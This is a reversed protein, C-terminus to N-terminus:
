RRLHKPVPEGRTREFAERDEEATYVRLLDVGERRIAFVPHGRRELWADSPYYLGRRRQLVFFDPAVPPGTAPSNLDVLTVRPPLRGWERLLDHVASDMPLALAIPRHKAEAEAAAWDFFEDGATEWYYTLEFGLREAGRLGGVAANYYSDTYPYTRAIGVLSEGLAGAALLPPIIRRWGLRLRPRDALWAVGLGALVALSAVSPLILRIGDHGPANPLARVVMLTAWSLPWILAWPEVRRRAVCAAVGIMGLALVSVPTTVATLVLTNHWPLSFDYVRGLYLTALPQTKARSLNSALFRIPGALPEVWWPPQIAYLVVAAVPLGVLLTRLGARRGERAVTVWALAPVVAFLGTFKTGACLGLALGFAPAWAKSDLSAAFAVQALLWLCTMPMDYHAYHAHAFSRPLGVILLSGVAGALWGKRRALHHYVVGVTAATLLMPGLRYAELPPLWRHGVRWGAVGLLAYFPPHGHPEERSFPWSRDLTAKDFAPRDFWRDLLRERRVTYGEDWAMGFRLSTALLVLLTAASVVPAALFDRWGRRAESEPSAPGGETV